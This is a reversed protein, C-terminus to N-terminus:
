DNFLSKAFYFGVVVSVITQYSEPIPRGVILMGIYPIIIIFSLIHVVIHYITIRKQKEKERTIVGIREDIKTKNNIKSTPELSELNLVETKEEPAM